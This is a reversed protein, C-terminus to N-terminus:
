SNIGTNSKHQNKKSKNKIIQNETIIRRTNSKGGQKGRKGSQVPKGQANKLLQANELLQNQQKDYTKIKNELEKHLNLITKNILEIITDNNPPIVNSYDWTLNDLYKLTIDNLTITKKPDLSAM